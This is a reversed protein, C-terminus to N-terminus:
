PLGTFVQGQSPALDPLPAPREWQGKVHQTEKYDKNRLDNFNVYYTNGNETSYGAEWGPPLDIESSPTRIYPTWDLTGDDWQVQYCMMELGSKHLRWVGSDVKAIRGGQWKEQDVNFAEVKEGVSFVVYHECKRTHKGM